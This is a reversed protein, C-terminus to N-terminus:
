KTTKPQEPPKVEDVVNGSPLLTVVYGEDLASAGEIVLTEDASLGKLVELSNDTVSLGIQVVRKEAVKKGDKEKVVFAVFGKETTLIATAPVVVANKNGGSYLHVSAFYGPILKDLDKEVRALCSVVRADMDLQDSVQYVIAEFDCNPWAPVRFNLKDGTKVSGSDKEALKFRLKLTRRDVITALPTGSTVYMGNTVYRKDIKGAIPPLVTSKRVDDQSIKWQSEKQVIAAELAKIETVAADQADKLMVKQVDRKSQYLQIEEDSIGGAEKVAVRRDIETQAELLQVKALEIMNFDKRKTNALDAEAQKYIAEDRASVYQYALPAIRLLVQEKKVDDGENFSVDYITGAVQSDIRYVDQPELNGVARIEYTVPQTRVPQVRVPYTRVTSLATAPAPAPTPASATGARLSTFVAAGGIGAVLLIIMVYKM